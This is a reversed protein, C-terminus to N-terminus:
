GRLATVLEPLQDRRMRLRQLIREIPAEEEGDPHAVDNRMDTLDDWMKNLTDSFLRGSLDIRTPRSGPEGRKQRKLNNLANEAEDRSRLSYGEADLVLSVILERFLTAAQVIYRRDIYWSVLRQQIELSRRATKKEASEILAFPEYEALLDDCIVQFPRMGEIPICRCADVRARLEAAAKMLEAHRTVLLHTSITRISQELKKMANAATRLSADTALQAPAPLARHVLDALPAGDGTNRLRDLATMWDLLQTFPSLDLVPARGDKTLELAGYHVADIQVGRAEKLYAAVLFVFFPLSRLGHTIDFIVTDGRAVSGVIAGFTRWMEASEEGTEIEIMRIRPDQLAALRPWAAQAADPTACVLMEDFEVVQRLAEPFVHGVVDRGQFAYTTERVNKGLFTIIRKM